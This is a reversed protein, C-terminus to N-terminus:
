KQILLNVQSKSKGCSCWAYKKGAQLHLRFPKKDYIAGKGKQEEIFPELKNKPILEEPVKFAGLAGTSTFPQPILM